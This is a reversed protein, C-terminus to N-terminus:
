ANALRAAFMACTAAMDEHIGIRRLSYRHAGVQNWGGVTTVAAHYGVEEVMNMLRPTFSGNPYCFANFNSDVIGRSMLEACSKMLEEKVEEDSLTTLIPHSATHSGFHVLGSSFMEDVEQWSLFAREEPMEGCRSLDALDNLIEEIAEVRHRKLLHIASELRRAFSGKVGLIQGLLEQRTKSRCGGSLTQGFSHALLIGLRDTWFWKNTGIFNTPLFVTAPVHYKALVPFAHRFFDSWGDDFTLVFRPKCKEQKTLPNRLISSLPVIQGIEGLYRVHMDLTKPHVVMGAQVSPVMESAPMVRHYMLIATDGCSRRRLRRTYIGIGDFAAARVSRLIISAKM